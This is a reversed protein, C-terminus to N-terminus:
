QDFKKDLSKNVGELWDKIRLIPPLESRGNELVRAMLPSAKRVDEITINGAEYDDVLQRISGDDSLENNSQGQPKEGGGPVPESDGQQTEVAQQNTEQTKTGDPQAFLDDFNQQIEEPSFGQKEWNEVLRAVYKQQEERTKAARVRQVYEKNESIIAEPTNLGAKVKDPNGKKVIPKDFLAQAEAQAEEPSLGHGMLNSQIQNALKQKESVSREAKIEAALRQNEARIEQPIKQPPDEKNQYRPDYLDRFDLEEELREFERAKPTTPDGDINYDSQDTPNEADYFRLSDKIENYRQIMRATIPDAEPQAGGVGGGGGTTNARLVNAIEESPLGAKSFAVMAARPQGKTILRQGAEIYADNAALKTKNKADANAQQADIKAQEAAAVAQEDRLAFDLEQSAVKADVGKNFANIEQSSQRNARKTTFVNQKYNELQKKYDFDLNALTDYADIGLENAATPASQYNGTDDTRARGIADTLADIGQAIFAIKSLNKAKKFRESDFEPAEPAEQRYDNEDLKQGKISDLMKSRAQSVSGPDEEDPLSSKADYDVAGTQPTQGFITDFVMARKEELSKPEEDDFTFISADKKRKYTNTFTQIAM